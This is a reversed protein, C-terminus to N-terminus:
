ATERIQVASGATSKEITSRRQDTTSRVLIEEPDINTPFWPIELTRLQQLGSRCLTGYGAPAKRHHSTEVGVDIFCTGGTGDRRSL